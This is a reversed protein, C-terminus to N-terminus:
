PRLGSGIQCAVSLILVRLLPSTASPTLQEGM